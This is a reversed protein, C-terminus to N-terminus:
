PSLQRMWAGFSSAAGVESRGQAAKRTHAGDLQQDAIESPTCGFAQRFARSFHKESVFGHAWAVEAIKRRRPMGEDLLADRARMLRKRQIVHMVGGNRELLRYLKARSIGIDKCIREPTLEPAFLNREIYDIIRNAALADLERSAEHMADRTPAISARLLNRTAQVTQPLVDPTMDALNRRLSLLYDGFLQAAAGKPSEGHLRAAGEPLLERPIVMCVTDGTTVELHFPSALDLLCLKGPGADVPTLGAHGTLSESIHLQLYYGDLDDSRIKHPSRSMTHRLQRSPQAWCRGGFMMSGLLTFDVSSDYPVDADVISGFEFLPAADSRWADFRETAPAQETSFRYTTTAPSTDM